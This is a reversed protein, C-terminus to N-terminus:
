WEGDGSRCWKWAQLLWEHGCVVWKPLTLGFSPNGSTTQARPYTKKTWKKKSYVLENKPDMSGTICRRAPGCVCSVSRCLVGMGILWQEYPPNHTSSPHHPSPSSVVSSKLSSSRCWPNLPQSPAGLSVTMMPALYAKKTQDNRM